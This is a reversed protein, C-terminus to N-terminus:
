FASVIIGGDFKILQGRDHIFERIKEDIEDDDEQPTEGDMDLTLGLTDTAQKDDSFHESAWEQLSAYESYDCRIAVVDLEMGEGTDAELEELYEALAMAGAHSWNANDDAKLADAIQYTNLTTKM